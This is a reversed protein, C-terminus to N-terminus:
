ARGIFRRILSAVRGPQEHVVWHSGEPIRVVELTDVHGELGELNGPLLAEDREGWLVLTPVTVHFVAPDLDLMADAAGNERPYLPSARYYNLAGTLAGPQSWSALYAQRDAETVAGGNAAWADLTMRLLRACGNESLVREAKDSRFLNMYASAKRQAANDRLERAFTVPHPANVIVLQELLEPHTAAFNWAVAGGWDHAIMVCREHGLHGILLRLDEVLHRPRYDRVAPPKSSLNYGRLDPAVAHHDRGFDPLLDKWEYWFEPFGHVFLVLRGSGVSAHHLTIGNPLAALGFSTEM